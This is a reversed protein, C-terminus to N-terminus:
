SLLGILASCIFIAALGFIALGIALGLVFDHIRAAKIPDAPQNRKPATKKPPNYSSKPTPRMPAIRERSVRPQLPTVRPSMRSGQTGAPTSATNRPPIQSNRLFEPPPGGFPVNSM